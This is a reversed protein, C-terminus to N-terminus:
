VRGHLKLRYICTQEAGWNSKVRFVVHDVRIGPIDIVTNVPFRQIHDYAHIDYRMTAIRYFSPGLAPDDSYSGEPESESSIRLSSMLIDHLDKRTRSDAKPQAKSPLDAEAPAKNGASGGFMSFWSSAVEPEEVPEVVPVIQYHAWLEIDRPAFGPNLTEGEPIHEVVVEEPVIDHGLVISIQSFTDDHCWCEEPEKWPLLAQIPPYPGHFAPRIGAVNTLFRQLRSYKSGATRATNYPDIAAGWTPSLFNIRHIQKGPLGPDVPYETPISEPPKQSRIAVLENSLSSLEANMSSLQSELSVFASSDTMNPTYEFPIHGFPWPIDFKQVLGAPSLLTFALSLLLVLGALIWMPSWSKGPPSPSTKTPKKTRESRFWQPIITRVPATWSTPPSEPMPRPGSGASPEPEPTAEPTPEGASVSRTDSEPEEEEEIMSIGAIGSPRRPPATINQGHPEGRYKRPRTRQLDDEHVDRELNWSVESANDISSQRSFQRDPTSGAPGDYTSQRLISPYLPSDSIISLRRASPPDAAPSSDTSVTRPVPPSPTSDSQQNDKSPSATAERLTEFLQTEDPTPERRSQRVRNGYRGAMKEKQPGKALPGKRPKWATRPTFQFDDIDEYASLDRRSTARPVQVAM